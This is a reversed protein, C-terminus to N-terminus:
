QGEAPRPARGHGAPVSLEADFGPGVDQLDQTEPLYWEGLADVVIQWVHELPLPAM